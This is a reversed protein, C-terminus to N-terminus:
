QINKIRELREKGINKFLPLRVFNAPIETVDIVGNLIVDAYKSSRTELQLKHTYLSGIISGKLEIIGNCYIDGVVLSNRDVKIYNNQKERFSSGDMVIGGYIEVDEEIM